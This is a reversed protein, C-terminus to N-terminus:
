QATLFGISGFAHGYGERDSRESGQQEQQEEWPLHGPGLVSGNEYQARASTTCLTFFFLLLLSAYISSLKPPM